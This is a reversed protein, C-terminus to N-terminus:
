RVYDGMRMKAGNAADVARQFTQYDWRMSVRNGVVVAADVGQSWSAMLDGGCNASARGGSFCFIGEDWSNAGNDMGSFEPSSPHTHIWGVRTVDKFHEVDWFGHITRANGSSYVLSFVYGNRGEYLHSGLEVGYLEQYPGVIAAWADEAAAQTKYVKFAGAKHLARNAANAALRGKIPNPKETSGGSQQIEAPSRREALAVQIATSMAGNIFKGGSIKSITGGILAGTTTRAVDNRIGGLTPVFAATLGASLVGNGFRGGQLSEMVGGTVARHFIQDPLGMGQIQLGVGFTVGATFAGVVAGRLTGTAVYGSAAGFALAMGFKAVAGGDMGQLVITGIIAIAFGLLQRLNFMGTPDVYVFPNNFAYTYANWSQANAPAQVLPDAQLFRGLDSDYIRGNMHIIGTGDVYEHDTYGRPTNPSASGAVHPDTPSRRGGFAMYDLREAVSGDANAIRVLSGLHDRFLYKTAQEVGNVVSQLAIGGLYRKMTTVGGQIVVEVGGVYYTVKGAEERKYRQGDPGYWFRVRQGSGMQIEHAMDDLSYAITRDGATGPADRDVQNGRADYTYTTVSGGSVTQSVAHPGGPGTSLPGALSIFAAQKGSTTPSAAGTAVSGSRKVWFSPGGRSAIGHALSWDREEQEWSPRGENVRRAREPAHQVVRNRWASLTEWARVNRATIRNLLATTVSPAAAVENSVVAERPGAEATAMPLAAMGMAGTCGALTGYGYETGNRSCINGLADYGLSM